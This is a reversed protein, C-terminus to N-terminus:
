SQCIIGLCHRDRGVMCHVIPTKRVLDLTKPFYKELNINDRGAHYFTVQNWDPRHYLNSWKMLDARNKLDFYESQVTKWNERLTKTWHNVRPDRTSWVGDESAFWWLFANLFNGQANSGRNNFLYNIKEAGFFKWSTCGGAGDYVPAVLIIFLMLVAYAKVIFCMWRCCAAM